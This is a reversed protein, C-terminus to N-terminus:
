PGCDSPMVVPWLADSVFLVSPRADLLIARYVAAGLLTNIPMPIVGAKLAGWFIVPFELTDLVIMAAREDRRIDARAL